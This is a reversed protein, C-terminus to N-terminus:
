RRGNRAHMVKIGREAMATNIEGVLKISRTSQDLKQSLLLEMYYLGLVGILM